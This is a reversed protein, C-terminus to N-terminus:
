TTVQLWFVINIETKKGRPTLNYHEGTRSNTAISPIQRLKYQNDKFMELALDAEVDLREFPLEKEALRHMAASFVMLEQKTPNWGSLKLDVDYIFCGSSVLVYM